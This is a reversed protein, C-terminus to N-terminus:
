SVLRSVARETTVESDSRVVVIAPPASEAGFEEEALSAARMSMSDAPPNDNDNTKVSDLTPAVLTLAGIVFVWVVIVLWAARRSIRPLRLDSSNM